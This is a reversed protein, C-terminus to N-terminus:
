WKSVSIEVSRANVLNHVREHRENADLDIRQASPNSQLMTAYLYDALNSKSHVLLANCRTQLLWFAAHLVVVEWVSDHSPIQNEWGGAAGKHRPRDIYFWNYNTYRLAEVIANADDTLLFINRSTLTSSMAQLYDQIPRYRRSFKGHLVVDARRVHVVTCTENSPLGVSEAVAVARQRLWSRPRTAHQLLWAVSLPRHFGRWQFNYAIRPKKTTTSTLATHTCNTLPLFYGDLGNEGYQWNNPTKILVPVRDSMALLLGDVVHSLDVGWGSGSTHKVHQCTTNHSTPFQIQQLDKLFAVHQSNVIRRLCQHTTNQLALEYDVHQSWWTDVAVDTTTWHFCRMRTVQKSDLQALSRVVTITAHTKPAHSSQVSLNNYENQHFTLSFPLHLVVTNALYVTVILFWWRKQHVRRAAAAM